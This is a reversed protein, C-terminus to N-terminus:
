FLSVLSSSSLKCWCTSAHVHSSGLPFLYLHAFQGAIPQPLARHCVTHRTIDSVVSYLSRMSQRSRNMWHLEEAPEVADFAEVWASELIPLAEDDSTSILMKWQQFYQLAQEPGRHARNRVHEMIDPSLNLMRGFVEAQYQTFEAVLQVVCLETFGSIPWCLYPLLYLPLLNFLM